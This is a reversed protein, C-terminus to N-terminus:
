EKIRAQLIGHASFGLSSCNISDCLTSCSQTIFVCVDDDTGCLHQFHFWPLRELRLGQGEREKRSLWFTSLLLGLNGLAMPLCVLSNLFRVCANM